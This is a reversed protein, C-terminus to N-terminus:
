RFLNNNCYLVIADLPVKALVTGTKDPTARLSVYDKCNVVRMAGLYYMDKVVQKRTAATSVSCSVCLVLVILLAAIKKM